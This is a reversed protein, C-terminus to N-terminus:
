VAADFDWNTRNMKRMFTETFRLEVTPTWVDSGNLELGRIYNIGSGVSGMFRGDRRRQSRSFEIPRKQFIVRWLEVDSISQGTIGGDSSLQEVDPIGFVRSSRGTGVVPVFSNGRSTDAEIM